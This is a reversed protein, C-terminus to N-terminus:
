RGSSGSSIEMVQFAGGAPDALVAFPGMPTPTASLIVSGGLEVARSQTAECDSVTFYVSWGDPVEVPLHDPRAIMGAAADSGLSFVTYPVLGSDDREATWGFVEHYFEIAGQVDASMLEAWCVAGVEESFYPFEPEPGGSILSFMAGSHDAIVAVRAGGPSEFPPTLVSGSAAIVRTLIAEIDDVIVYMTWVAPARAMEPAQAMMGAVERGRSSAVAYEGMPTEQIDLEWDLLEVYFRQAGDIDSTSLDFWSVAGSRVNSM